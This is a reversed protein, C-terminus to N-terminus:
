PAAEQNLAQDIIAQADPPLLNKEPVWQWPLHAFERRAADLRGVDYGHKRLIEIECRRIEYHDSHFGKQVDIVALKHMAVRLSHRGVGEGEPVPSAEAAKAIIAAMEARVHAIKEVPSLAAVRAKEANVEALYVHFDFPKAEEIPPSPPPIRAALKDLRVSLASM